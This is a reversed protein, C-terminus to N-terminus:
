ATEEQFKKKVKIRKDNKEYYGRLGTYINIVGLLLYVSTRWSSLGEIILLMTTLIILIGTIIMIFFLFKSEEDKM